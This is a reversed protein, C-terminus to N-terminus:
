AASRVEQLLGDLVANLEMPFYQVDAEDTAAGRAVWDEGLQAQEALSMDEYLEYGYRAKTFVFEYVCLLKEVSTLDAYGPYRARAVEMVRSRTAVPLKRWLDAYRHSRHVIGTVKLLLAKILVELALIKLLSQSDSQSRLSQGILDADHIRAEAEAVMRAIRDNM